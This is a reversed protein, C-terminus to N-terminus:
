YNEKLIPSCLAEIESIADDITKSIPDEEGMDWIRDEYKMMENGYRGQSLIRAAFSVKRWENLIDDIPKPDGILFRFKEKIVALNSYTQTKEGLRMLTIFGNAGGSQKAKEYEKDGMKEKLAEFEYGSSMPSRIAQLDAKAMHASDIAKLALEFNFKRKDDVHHVNIVDREAQVRQLQLKKMAFWGGFIATLALILTGSGTAIHYFRETDNIWSVIEVMIGTGYVGVMILSILFVIKIFEM